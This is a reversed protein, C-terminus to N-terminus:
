RNLDPNAKQKHGRSETQGHHRLEVDAPLNTRTSRQEGATLTGLLRESGMDFLHSSGIRDVTAANIEGGTVVIRYFLRQFAGNVRCRSALWKTHNSSVHADIRVNAVSEQPLRVPRHPLKGIVACWAAPGLARLTEINSWAQRWRHTAVPSALERKDALISARTPAKAVLPAALVRSDRGPRSDCAVCRGDRIHVHAIDLRLSNGTIWAVTGEM